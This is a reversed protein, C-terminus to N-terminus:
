VGKGTIITRLTYFLIKLDFVLSINELYIMDFKLREMMKQVTDAYGYKVMGLSTIGPRVKQLMFYNPEAEVIQNIFFLREPRPGVISMDGILVNWFQPLEDLRYKRMLQGYPTIRKDHPLTLQPGTEEADEYMSRFKYIMFPKGNKGIREQKYLISGKSDTKVKIALYIYLPTLLILFLASAAVDLVRKLNEQFPSMLDNCVEMLPTGYIPNLKAKGILKEYVSPSVKTHVDKQYLLNIIDMVQQQTPKSLAVIVEEIKRDEIVQHLDDLTGFCTFGNVIQGKKRKDFSIMGKIKHGMYNPLRQIVNTAEQGAGVILTNFSISGSALKNKFAKTIRNRTIYFLIFHIGFFSFFSVYYNIFETILDDLLVLFFVIISGVITSFFTVVLESFRTKHVVDQYFGSLYFMMLWFAPLVIGGLWYNRDPFITLDSEIVQSDLYLRRYVFFITWAVIAVIIDAIIYKRAQKTKHM